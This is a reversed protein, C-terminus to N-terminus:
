NKGLKTERPKGLPNAILRMQCARCIKFEFSKHVQDQLDEATLHKMQELLEAMTREIDMEELDESSVPPMAPDAFVEMKVVYHGHPPVVRGCMDCIVRQDM